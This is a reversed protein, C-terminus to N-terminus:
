RTYKKIEFKHIKNKIKSDCMDINGFYNFFKNLTSVQYM